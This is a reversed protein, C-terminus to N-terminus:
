NKELLLLSCKLNINEPHFFIRCRQGVKLGNWVFVKAASIKLLFGLFVKFVLGKPQEAVWLISLGRQNRRATWPQVYPLGFYRSGGGM